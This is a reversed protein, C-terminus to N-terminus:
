GRWKDRGSLYFLLAVVGGVALSMSPNETGSYFFVWAAVIGGIVLAFWGCGKNWALIDNYRKTRDEEYAKEQIEVQRALSEEEGPKCPRGKVWSLTSACNKCREYNPVAVGGCYPCKPGNPTATQRAIREVAEAQRTAIIDRINQDM